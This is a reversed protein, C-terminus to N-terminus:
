LSKVTTTKQVAQQPLDKVTVNFITRSCFTDQTADYLAGLYGSQDLAPREIRGNEVEM